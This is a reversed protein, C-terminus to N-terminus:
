IITSTVGDTMVNSVNYTMTGNYRTRLRSARFNGVNNAPYNSGPAFFIYPKQYLGEMTERRLKLGNDEYGCRLCVQRQLYYVAPVSHHHDDCAPRSNHGGTFYARTKIKM